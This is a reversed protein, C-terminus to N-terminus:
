FHVVITTFTQLISLLQQLHCIRCGCAFDALVCLTFIGHQLVFIHGSDNLTEINDRLLVGLEEAPEGEVLSHTM